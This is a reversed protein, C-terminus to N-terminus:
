EDTSRCTAAPIFKLNQGDRASNDSLHVLVPVRVPCVKAELTNLEELTPQPLTKGRVGLAFSDVITWVVAMTNTINGTPCLASSASDRPYNFLMWGNVWLTARKVIPM